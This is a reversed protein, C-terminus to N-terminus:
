TRVEQVLVQGSGRFGVLAVITAGSTALPFEWLMGGTFRAAPFSALVDAEGAWAAKEVLGLWIGIERSLAADGSAAAAQLLDRGTVRM